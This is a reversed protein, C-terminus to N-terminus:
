PRAPCPPATRRTSQSRPTRRTTALSPRLTPSATRAGHRTPQRPPRDDAPTRSSGWLSTARRRCFVCGRETAGIAYSARRMHGLAPYSDSRRHSRRKRLRHEQARPRERARRTANRPSLPRGRSGAYSWGASMWNTLECSLVEDRACGALRRRFSGCIDVFGRLALAWFAQQLRFNGGVGPWGPVM